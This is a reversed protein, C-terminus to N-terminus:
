QILQVFYSVFIFLAIEMARETAAIKLPHVTRLNEGFADIVDGTVQQDGRLIQYVCGEIYIQIIIQRVLGQFCYQIQLTIPGLGLLM